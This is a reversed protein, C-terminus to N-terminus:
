LGDELGEYYPDSWRCGLGEPHEEGEEWQAKEMGLKQMAHVVRNMPHYFGDGWLEIQDLVIAPVLETLFDSPGFVQEDFLRTTIERITKIAAAIEQKRREDANQGIFDISM